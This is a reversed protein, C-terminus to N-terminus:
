LGIRGPFQPPAALQQLEAPASDLLQQLPNTFVEKEDADFFGAVLEKRLEDFLQAGTGFAASQEPNMNFYRRSMWKLFDRQKKLQQSLDTVLIRRTVINNPLTM